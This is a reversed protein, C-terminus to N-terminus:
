AAAKAVTLTTKTKTTCSRMSGYFGTVRRASGDAPFVM